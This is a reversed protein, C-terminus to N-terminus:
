ARIERGRGAKRAYLDRDAARILDAPTSMRLSFTAIGTSARIGAGTLLPDQAIARAVRTAHTFGGRRDTDALVSIFEDGGFRAALNMARTQQTLVRAFARLAEDGAEHGAQDNYDKFNDLDYLMVTLKRGRRAAAFERELFMEVHRRNPLGTLADTLSLAFIQEHLRANAVAIAAASSLRELVRLEHERYARKERHGIALAGLLSNEAVLSVAMTSAAATETRLYEPLNAGTDHIADLVFTHRTRAIERMQPPIPVILGRPPAIDGATMVVEVENDGRVLWVSAFDATTLDVAVQVIRELVKPLDLSSTLARGIEELREAEHQRREREELHRVNSLTVAALDAIASFLELDEADYAHDAFSYACMAGLVQEDHVLPASLVSFKGPRGVAPPIAHVPDDSLIPKRSRIVVSDTGRFRISSDRIQDGEAHVV